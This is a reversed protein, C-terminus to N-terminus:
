KEQENNVLKGKKFIMNKYKVFEEKSKSKSVSGRKVKDNIKCDFWNELFKKGEERIYHKYIMDKIEDPAKVLDVNIKEVYNDILNWEELALPNVLKDLESDQSNGSEEEDDEGSDEDDEESDEEYESVSGESAIFNRDDSNEDDDEESWSDQSDLDEFGEFSNEYFKNYLDLDMNILKNDVHALAYMNGYYIENDIPPPLDYKNIQREKGDTFCFLSITIDEQEPKYTFDCERSISGKGISKLVHTPFKNIDLEELNTDDQIKFEKPIGAIDVYIAQIFTKKKSSTLGSM